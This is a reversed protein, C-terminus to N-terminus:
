TGVHLRMERALEICQNARELDLASVQEDSMLITEARSMLEEMRQFSIVSM